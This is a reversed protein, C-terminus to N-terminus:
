APQPESCEKGQPGNQLERLLLPTHRMCPGSCARLLVVQTPPTYLGAVSRAALGLQVLVAAWAVLAPVLAVALVEM